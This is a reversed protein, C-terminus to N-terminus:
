ASRAAAAPHATRAPTDLESISKVRRKPGPVPDVHSGSARATQASM